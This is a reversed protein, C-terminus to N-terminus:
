PRISTPRPRLRLSLSLPLVVRSCAITSEAAFMLLTAHQWARDTGASAAANTPCMIHEADVRLLVTARMKQICKYGSPM